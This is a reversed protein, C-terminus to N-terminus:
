VTEKELCVHDGRSHILETWGETNKRTSTRNSFLNAFELTVQISQM